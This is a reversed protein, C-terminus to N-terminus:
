GTGPMFATTAPISFLRQSRYGQRKGSDLNSTRTTGDIEYVLLWGGFIEENKTGGINSQFCANPREKLLRLFGPWDRGGAAQAAVQKWDYGGKPKRPIRWFDKGGASLIM